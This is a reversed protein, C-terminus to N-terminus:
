LIGPQFKRYRYKSAWHTTMFPTVLIAVITAIITLTSVSSYKLKVRSRWTHTGLHGAIHYRGLVM